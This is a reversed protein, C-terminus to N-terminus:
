VLVALERTEVTLRNGKGIRLINHPVNKALIFQRLEIFIMLVIIIGTM